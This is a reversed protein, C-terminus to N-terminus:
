SSLVAHERAYAAGADLARMNPELLNRRREPLHDRLAQKVQDMELVPLLTLMAGVAVMNALRRDGLEEAIHNAPIEIGKVDTREIGRHALSANVVVVGGPRVLPEFKDLSPANMAILAQPHKVLPSGIEQDSLIVTCNATGGRMEPGYSPFWTVEMGADMAAYALVQGAFLIGQGGFGAIIIETQM